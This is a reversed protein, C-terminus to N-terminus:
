VVGSRVHKLTAALSRAGSHMADNLVRATGNASQATERVAVPHGTDTAIVEWGDLTSLIGFAPEPNPRRTTDITM